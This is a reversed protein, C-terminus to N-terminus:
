AVILGFSIFKASLDPRLGQIALDFIERSISDNRERQNGAAKGGGGRDQAYNMERQNYARSTPPINLDLGSFRFRESNIPQDYRDVINIREESGNRLLLASLYLNLPFIPDSIKSRVVLFRGLNRIIEKEKTAQM